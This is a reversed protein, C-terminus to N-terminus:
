GRIALLNSVVDRAHRVLEDYTWVLIRHDVIDNITRLMRRQEDNLQADRGIVVLARPRHIEAFGHSRAYAINDEVWAFWSLAQGLAHSLSASPQPYKTFVSDSPKELEVFVYQNDFRKIVFDTRWMEGLAQRPIVQAALPDVLAPHAEFFDQYAKEPLDQDILKQAESCLEDSIHLTASAIADWSLKIADTGNFQFAQLITGVERRKNPDSLYHRFIKFILKRAHTSLNPDSCAAIVRDRLREYSPRDLYRHILIVNRRADQVDQLAAALLSRGARYGALGGGQISLDYLVELGPQGYALFAYFAPLEFHWEDEIGSPARLALSKHEEIRGVDLNSYVSQLGAIVAREGDPWNELQLPEQFDDFYGGEDSM